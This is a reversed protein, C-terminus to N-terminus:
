FSFVSFMFTKEYFTLALDTFCEDDFFETMFVVLMKYTEIETFLCVNM